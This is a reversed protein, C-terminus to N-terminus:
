AGAAKVGLFYEQYENRNYASDVGPGYQPRFFLTLSFHWHCWRYDFGQGEPKYRLVEVLQAVAYGLYTCEVISNLFFCHPLFDEIPATFFLIKGTASSGLAPWPNKIKSTELDCV